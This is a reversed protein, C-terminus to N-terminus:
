SGEDQSEGQVLGVDVDVVNFAIGVSANYFLVSSYGVISASRRTEM